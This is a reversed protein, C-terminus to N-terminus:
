YKFIIGKNVWWSDDGITLLRTSKLPASHRSLKDVRARSLSLFDIFHNLNWMTVQRSTCAWMINEHTLGMWRVGESSVTISYLTNLTDLCLLKISCDESCSLILSDVQPHSMIQTVPKTHVRFVHVLGGNVIWCKVTRDNSSTVMYQASTSYVCGTISMDHARKRSFLEEGNNLNYAHLDNESCCYLHSLKHDMTVKKVWGGGVNQLTYKHQLKYNSMAKVETWGKDEVVQVFQWVLM